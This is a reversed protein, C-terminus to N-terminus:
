FDEDGDIGEMDIRFAQCEPDHLGYPAHLHICVTQVERKWQRSLGLEGFGRLERLSYDLLLGHQKERFCKLQPGMGAVVYPVIDPLSIPTTAGDKLGRSAQELVSLRDLFMRPRFPDVISFGVWAQNFLYAIVDAGFVGYLLRFACNHFSSVCGNERALKYDQCARGWFLRILAREQTTTGSPGGKAPTFYHERVAKLKEKVDRDRELADYHVPSLCIEIQHEYVEM